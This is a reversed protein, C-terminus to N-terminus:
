LFINFFRVKVFAVSTTTGAIDVLVVTCKDINTNSAVEQESNM